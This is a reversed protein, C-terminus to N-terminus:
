LGQGEGVPILGRFRWEESLEGSPWRPRQKASLKQMLAIAAPDPALVEPGLEAHVEGASAVRHERDPRRM